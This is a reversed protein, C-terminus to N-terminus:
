ETIMPTCHHSACEDKGIEIKDVQEQVEDEYSKSLEAFVQSLEFSQQAGHVSQNCYPTHSPQIIPNHRFSM